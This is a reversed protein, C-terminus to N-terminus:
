VDEEDAMRESECEWCVFLQKGDKDHGDKFLESNEFDKRNPRGNHVIEKSIGCLHCNFTEVYIGMINEEM